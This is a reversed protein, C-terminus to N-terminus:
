RGTNTWDVRATFKSALKSTLFTKTESNGWKQHAMMIPDKESFVGLSPGAV